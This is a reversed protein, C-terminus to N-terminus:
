NEAPAQPPSEEGGSGTGGGSGLKKTLIQRFGALIKTEKQVKEEFNLAALAKAEEASYIQSEKRMRVANM